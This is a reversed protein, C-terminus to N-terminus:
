NANKFIKRKSIEIFSLELLSIGFVLLWDSFGLSVTGLIKQAVPLYVGVVILALGILVSINLYPNSFVNSTIIPKELGKMSFAYVLSDFAMMAFLVSRVRDLDNYLFLFFIFALCAMLGTILGISIMWKKLENSLFAKISKEKILDKEKERGFALAIGPLSDEIVNIWLIQAPLLPLPLAFLLAFIFLFIESFDDSVLYIVVKKINRVINRGALLAEKLNALNNDILVLDAVEKSIDSGSGLAVGVNATKIAPADNVGDGIMAVVEGQAQLAKVLRLKDRPVVEAFVNQKKLVQGLEEESLQELDLGTLIDGEIKIHLDRAVSAVTQKEDGSAIITRVGAKELSKIVWASEKRLPDRLVLFGVFNLDFVLSNLDKYDEEKKNLYRFATGLLRYGKKAEKKLQDKIREKDKESLPKLKGDLYVNKAKKLLIDADGLLLLMKKRGAQNLSLSYRNKSNFPLFDLQPYVKLLEQKTMGIQIGAFLIAKETPSGRLIWEETGKQHDEIFADSALIGIKLALVHSLIEDKKFDLFPEKYFLEKELTIIKSVAMEGKTLTGTKDTIITSVGGLTELSSLRKVLAQKKLIRRAGYILIITILPLLGEPVASVVLALSVLFINFLTYGRLLGVLVILIVISIVLKVIFSAFKKIRKQILSEEETLSVLQYIEGLYSSKGTATVVARGFGSVVLSGAFVINDRDTIKTEKKIPETNKYRPFYEGSLSSEDCALNSAFIVRADAPVKDGEKLVLIDGLVINESLIVKERGERIVRATPKLSEKLKELTKQAKYEQLAGVIVNLVIVFLIFLADVVRGLVLSILSALFIILVLLNNVQDWLFNFFTLSKKEELKNKGFTKLRERAEKESLGKESTKLIKFVESVELKYAEKLKKQLIKALM